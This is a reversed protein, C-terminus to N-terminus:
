RMSVKIFAMQFKSNTKVAVQCLEESILLCIIRFNSKFIFCIGLSFKELFLYIFGRSCAPIKNMRKQKMQKLESSVREKRHKLSINFSKCNSINQMKAQFINMYSPVFNACLKLNSCSITKINYLKLSGYKRGHRRQM